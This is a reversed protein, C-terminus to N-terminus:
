ADLVGPLAPDGVPALNKAIRRFEAYREGESGYLTMSGQAAGDTGDKRIVSGALVVSQVGWRHERQSWIYTVHMREVRFQRRDGLIPGDAVDFDRIAPVTSNRDKVIKM